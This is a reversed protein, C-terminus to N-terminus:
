PVPVEMTVTWGDPGPGATLTGGCAAARERMHVVGNGGGHTGGTGARAPGADHVRLTLRGPRAALTM